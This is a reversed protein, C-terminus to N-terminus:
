PRHAQYHLGQGGSEHRKAEKLVELGNIGPMKFDVLILDLFNLNLLRLAEEGNEAENIRHGEKILFARLMERQFAQDEVILIDLGSVSM